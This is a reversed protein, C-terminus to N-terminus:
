GYQAGEVREILDLFEHEIEAVIRGLVLLDITREAGSLYRRAQILCTIAWRVNGAIEWFALAGRNIEIDTLQAYRELYPEVQDVGGLKLDPRGFRWSRLLPWALDEYRSGAHATEWDIVAALGHANVLLNGIRFDGHVLVAVDGESDTLGLHGRMWALGLEITPSEFGSSELRQALRGVVNAAVDTPAGFDALSASQVLASLEDDRVAHIGALAEAMEIPLKRRAVALGADAVIRRGAGEAAVYEMLFGPRGAIDDIYDLLAPVRVGHVAVAVIVRYEDLLSLTHAHLAGGASRRLIISHMQTGSRVDVRWTEKSAGGTIREPLLVESDRWRKTAWSRLAQQVQEAPRLDVLTANVTM